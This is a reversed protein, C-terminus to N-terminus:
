KRELDDLTVLHEEDEKIEVKVVEGCSKCQYFLITGDHNCCVLEMVHRKSCRIYPLIEKVMSAM